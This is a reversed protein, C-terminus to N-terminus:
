DNNILVETYSEEFINPKCPYFEGQIVKIIYDRKDARMNGELTKVVLFSVARENIHGNSRDFEEPRRLAHEYGEGIHYIGDAWELISIASNWDTFQIAEIEIPNKVYKSPKIM